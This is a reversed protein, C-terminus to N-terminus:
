WIIALLHQLQQTVEQELGRPEGGRHVVEPTAREKDGCLKHKCTM